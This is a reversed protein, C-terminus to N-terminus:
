IEYDSLFGASSFTIKQGDKKIDCFCFRNLFIRYSFHLWKYFLIKYADENTAYGFYEM